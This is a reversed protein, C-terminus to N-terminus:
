YRGSIRWDGCSVRKRRQRRALTYACGLDNANAAEPASAAALEAHYGAQPARM